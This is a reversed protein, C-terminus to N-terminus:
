TYKDFLGIKWIRSQIKKDLNIKKINIGSIDNISEVDREWSLKIGKNTWSKSSLYLCFLKDKVNKRWGFRNCAKISSKFSLCSTKVLNRRM